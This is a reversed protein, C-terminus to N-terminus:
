IGRRGVQHALEFGTSIRHLDEVGPRPHQWTVLKLAPADLRGTPDGVSDPPLHRPRFEDTKRASGARQEGSVNRFGRHVCDPEVPGDVPGKRAILNLRSNGHLAIDIRKCQKGAAIRELARDIGGQLGEGAAGEDEVEAMPDHRLRRDLMHFLHELANPALSIAVPRSARTTIPTEAVATSTPTRSHHCGDLRQRQPLATCTMATMEQIAPM